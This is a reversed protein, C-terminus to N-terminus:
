SKHLFRPTMVKNYFKMLCTHAGNGFSIDADDENVFPFIIVQNGKQFSNRRKKNGITITCDETAKRPYLAPVPSHFRLAKTFYEKPDLIQSGSYIRSPVAHEM